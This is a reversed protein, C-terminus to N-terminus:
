TTGQPKTVGQTRRAESQLDSVARWPAGNGNEVLILYRGVFDHGPKSGSNVNKVPRLENIKFLVKYATSEIETSPPVFGAITRAM